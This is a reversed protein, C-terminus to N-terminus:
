VDYQFYSPKEIPLLPRKDILKQNRDIGWMKHFMKKGNQSFQTPPQKRLRTLHIEMGGALFLGGQCVQDVTISQWLLLYLIHFSKSFVFYLLHSMKPFNQVIIILFSNSLQVSVVFCLVQKWFVENECGLCFNNPCTLTTIVCRFASYKIVLVVLVM